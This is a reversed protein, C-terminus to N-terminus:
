ILLHKFLLILQNDFYLDLITICHSPPPPHLPRVSRVVEMVSSQGQTPSMLQAARKASKRQQSQPEIEQWQKSDM